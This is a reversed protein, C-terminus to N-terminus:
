LNVFLFIEKYYKITKITRLSYSILDGDTSLMKTQTLKESM